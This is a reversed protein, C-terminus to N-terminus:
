SRGDAATLAEAARDLRLLCEASNSLLTVKLAPTADEEMNLGAQYNESQWVFESLWILPWRSSSILALNVGWQVDCGIQDPHIMAPMGLAKEFDKSKFFGNGLEKFGEPTEAGVMGGLALKLAEGQACLWACVHTLLTGHFDPLPAWRM